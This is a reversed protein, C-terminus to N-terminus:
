NEDSFDDTNDDSYLEYQKAAEKVMQIFAESGVQFPMGFAFHDSIQDEEIPTPYQVVGKEVLNQYISPDSLQYRQIISSACWPVHTKNSLLQIAETLALSETEKYGGRITFTGITTYRSESLQITDLQISLPSNTDLSMRITPITAVCELNQEVEELTHCDTSLIGNLKRVIRETDFLEEFILMSFTVECFQAGIYRLTWGDLGKKLWMNKEALVLHDDQKIDYFIDEFKFFQRNMPFLRLLSEITKMSAYFHVRAITIEDKPVIARFLMDIPVQKQTPLIPEYTTQYEYKLTSDEVM